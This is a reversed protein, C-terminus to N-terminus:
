LIGRVKKRLKAHDVEAYIGTTELKEHRLIVQIDKMDFGKDKLYFGLSHRFMHPTVKKGLINNGLIDIIRIVNHRGMPFLRSEPFLHEQEVFLRLKDRTSETFTVHAEKNGKGVIKIELKDFDIDELKIAILESERLGCEFLLSIMLSDRTDSDKIMLDVESKPLWKILKDTQKKKKVRPIYKKLEYTDNYEFFNNLFARAVGHRYRYCFTEIQTKGLTKNKIDKGFRGYFKNYFLWYSEITNKSLGRLQLYKYYSHEQNIAM